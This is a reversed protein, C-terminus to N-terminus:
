RQVVLIYRGLFDLSKNPMADWNRSSFFFDFVVKSGQKTLDNKGVLKNENSTSALLYITPSNVFCELCKEKGHHFSINQIFV